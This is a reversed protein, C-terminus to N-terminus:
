LVLKGFAWRKSTISEDLVQQKLTIPKIAQFFELSFGQVNECHHRGVQRIDTCVGATVYM